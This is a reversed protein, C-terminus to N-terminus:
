DRVFRMVAAADQQSQFLGSMTESIVQLPAQPVPVFQLKRRIAILLLHFLVLPIAAEGCCLATLRQGVTLRRKKKKISLYAEANSLVFGQRFPM